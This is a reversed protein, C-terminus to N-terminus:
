NGAGRRQEVYNKQNKENLSRKQPKSLRNFIRYIGYVFALGISTEVLAGFTSLKTLARVIPTFILCVIIWEYFRKIGQTEILKWVLDQVKDNEKYLQFSPHAPKGEGRPFGKDIKKLLWDKEKDRLM